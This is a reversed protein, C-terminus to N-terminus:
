KEKILIRFVIGDIEGTDDPHFPWHQGLHTTISSMIPLYRNLLIQMSANREHHGKIEEYIGQVVVSKWNAMTNMEEVEFCIAPNKRMFSAKKGEHTHCYIYQGDYAYSIPVVYTEGDAHCGIRGVVQNHLLEEIKENSLTGLMHPDKLPSHNIFLGKMIVFPVITM